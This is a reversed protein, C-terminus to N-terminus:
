SSFLLSVNKLLFFSWKPPNCGLLEGMVRLNIELVGFHERLCKGGCKRRLIEACVRPVFDDRWFFFNGLLSM